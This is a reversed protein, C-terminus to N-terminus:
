GHQLEETSLSEDNNSMYDDGIAKMPSLCWACPENNKVTQREHSCPPNTCQVVM